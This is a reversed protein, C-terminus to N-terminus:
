ALLPSLFLSGLPSFSRNAVKFIGQSPLFHYTLLLAHNRPLKSIVFRLVSGNLYNGQFFIQLSTPCLNFFM